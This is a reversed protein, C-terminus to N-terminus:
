DKPSNDIQIQNIDRDFLYLGGKDSGIMKIKDMIARALAEEELQESVYWQIFNHTTYDKEQLCIHVLENISNTIMVEHNLLKSFVGEISDFDHLPANLASIIAVGGRENIFKILKLMHSREEDSSKYLFESIGGLGQVEAWVAMSLYLQSSEAEKRVQENLANEVVKNM